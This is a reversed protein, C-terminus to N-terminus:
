AAGLEGLQDLFRQVLEVMSQGVRVGSTATALSHWGLGSAALPFAMVSRSGAVDPKAHPERSTRVERAHLMHEIIVGRM